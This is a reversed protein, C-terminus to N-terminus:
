VNNIYVTSESIIVNDAIRRVVATYTSCNGSPVNSLSTFSGTNFLADEAVTFRTGSVVSTQCSGVTNAARYEFRYVTNDILQKEDFSISFLYPSVGSAPAVTFAM